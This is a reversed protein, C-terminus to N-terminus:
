PIISSTTEVYPANVNVHVQGRGVYVTGTVGSDRIYYVSVKSCGAPATFSVTVRQVSASTSAYYSTPAVIDAFNTRDYASWKLESLTGRKVDFSFYYTIGATVDAYDGNNYYALAHNNNTTTVLELTNNGELDLTQDATSTCNNTTWTSHATGDEAEESWKLLNQAPVASGSSAVVGTMMMQGSVTVTLFLFLITLLKRM